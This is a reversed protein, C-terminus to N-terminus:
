VRNHSAKHVRLDPKRGAHAVTECDQPESVTMATTTAPDGDPTRASTHNDRPAAEPGSQMALHDIDTV